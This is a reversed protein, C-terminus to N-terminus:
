PEHAQGDSAIKQWLKSFDPLHGAETEHIKVWHPLGAAFAYIPKRPIIREYKGIYIEISINHEVILKQLKKKQPCFLRHSEWIRFVNIRQRRTAYNNVAFKHLKSHTLGTSQALSLLHLILESDYFLRRHLWRGSRTQSAFYYWPNFGIGDPSILLINLVRAPAMQLLHLAIRGGLSYGALNVPIDGAVHRWFDLMVEPLLAYSLPRRPVFSKGHFPLNVAIVRQSIGAINQLKAFDQLSRGYGHFAITTQPGSGWIGYEIVAGSPHKYVNVEMVRHLHLRAGKSFDKFLLNVYATKLYM